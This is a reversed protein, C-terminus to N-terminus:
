GSGDEWDPSSADAGNRAGDRADNGAESRGENRVDSTASVQDSPPAGSGATVLGSSGAPRRRGPTIGSPAVPRLQRDGVGATPVVRGVDKTATAGREPELAKLEKSFMEIGAELSKPRRHRLFLVGSVVTAAVVAGLVYLLNTLAMAAVILGNM